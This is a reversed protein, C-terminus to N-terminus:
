VGYLAIIRLVERLLGRVYYRTDQDLLGDLTAGALEAKIDGVILQIVAQDSPELATIDFQAYFVQELQDITFEANNAIALVPEVAERAELARAQRKAPDSEAEIYRAVGQGIFFSAAQRNDSLLSCASLLLAMLLVSLRTPM